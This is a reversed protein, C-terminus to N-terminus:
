PSPTRTARKLRYYERSFDALRIFHFLGDLGVNQWKEDGWNIVVEMERESLTIARCVFMRVLEYWHIIEDPDLTGRHQRFAVARWSSDISLFDYKFFSGAEHRVVGHWEVAVSNLVTKLAAPTRTAQITQAMEVPPKSVLTSNFRNSRLFNRRDIPHIKDLIPEVLCVLVGLNKLQRMEYGQPSSVRVHLGTSSNFKVHFHRQLVERVVGLQQGLQGSSLAPIAISVPSIIKVGQIVTVSDPKPEELQVDEATTVLWDTSYANDIIVEDDAGSALRVNLFEALYAAILELLDSKGSSELTIKLVVM